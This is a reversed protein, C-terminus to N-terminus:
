NNSTVSKCLHNLQSATLPGALNRFYYVFCGGWGEVLMGFLPEIHSIDCKVVEYQSNLCRFEKVAILYNYHLLQLEKSYDLLVDPKNLDAVVDRLFIEGFLGPFEDADYLHNPFGYKLPLLGYEEHEHTRTSYNAVKLDFACARVDIGSCYSGSVHDDATKTYLNIYEDIVKNQDILSSCGSCIVCCVAILGFYFRKM